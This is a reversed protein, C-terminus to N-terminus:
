KTLRVEAESHPVPSEGPPPAWTDMVWLLGARLNGQGIYRIYALASNWTTAGCNVPQRQNLLLEAYAPM